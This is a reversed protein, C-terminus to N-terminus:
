SREGPHQPANNGEAPSLAAHIIRRLMNSVTRDDARAAQSLRIYEDEPMVFNVAIKKISSKKMFIDKTYFLIFTLFAGAAVM